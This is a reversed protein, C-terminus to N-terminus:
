RAAFDRYADLITTEREIQDRTSRTVDLYTSRHRRLPRRHRRAIDEDV